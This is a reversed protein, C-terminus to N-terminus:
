RLSRQILDLDLSFPFNLRQPTYLFITTLLSYSTELHLPKSTRWQLIRSFHGRAQDSLKKHLAKKFHLAVVGKFKKCMSFYKLFMLFCTKILLRNKKKRSHSEKVMRSNKLVFSFRKNKSSIAQKWFVPNKELCGGSAYVIKQSCRSKKSFQKQHLATKLRASSSSKWKLVTLCQKRQHKLLSKEKKESFFSSFVCFFARSKIRSLICHTLWNCVSKGSFPDQNQKFNQIVQHSLLSHFQSQYKQNSSSREELKKFRSYYEQFVKSHQKSKELTLTNVLHELFDSQRKSDVSILDGPNVLYHPLTVRTENVRIQNHKLFQRAEALTRTLGSRYLVVDLRREILSFLNRSFYGKLKRAKKILTEIQRKTLHGYFLSLKKREKLQQFFEGSKKQQYQSKSFEFVFKDLSFLLNIPKEILSLFLPLDKSFDGDKTFFVARSTQFSKSNELLYNIKPLKSSFTSLPSSM